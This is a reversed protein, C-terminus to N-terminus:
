TVTKQSEPSENIIFDVYKKMQYQLDFRPNMLMNQHIIELDQKRNPFANITKVLGGTEHFFSCIKLDEFDNFSQDLLMPTKYGFSINFTGSFKYRDFIDKESGSPYMLPLILDSQQVYSHFMENSVFENGFTIIQKGELGTEDLLTQFEPFIEQKYRGLIILKISPHLPEQRIADLLGVYDRRKSEVSGPVVIWFENATKKISPLSNFKPYYFQLLDELKLNNKTTFGSLANKMYESLVFFKRIRRLMIKQFLKRRSRGGSEFFDKGNHVLCTCNVKRFPFLFLMSAMKNPTNVVIHSINHKRIYRRIRFFEFAKRWGRKSVYTGSLRNKEEILSLVHKNTILHVNHGSEALFHIQGHLTESHSMSLEILAVNKPRNISDTKELHM